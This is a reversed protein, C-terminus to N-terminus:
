KLLKVWRRKMKEDYYYNWWSIISSKLKGDKITWSNESYAFLFCKANEVSKQMNHNIIDQISRIKMIDVKEICYNRLKNIEKEIKKNELMCKYSKKCKQSKRSAQEIIYFNLEEKARLISSAVQKQYYENEWSKKLVNEINIIKQIMLYMSKEYEWFLGNVVSVMGITGDLANKSFWAIKYNEITKWLNKIYYFYNFGLWWVIESDKCPNSNKQYFEWDKSYAIKLYKEDSLSLINKIKEKSCNFFKGKEWLKITNERTKQKYKEDVKEYTKWAPMILAWVKYIESWFPSMSTLNNFEEYMYKAQFTEIYSAIYQINRIYNINTLTQQEAQILWSKNNEFSRRAYKDLFNNKFIFRPNQDRNYFYSTYDNKINLKIAYKSEFARKDFVIDHYFFWILISLLCLIWIFYKYM